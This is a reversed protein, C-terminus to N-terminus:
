FKIDNIDTQDVKLKQLFSETILQEPTNVNVYTSVHYGSDDDKKESELYSLHSEVTSDGVGNYSTLFGDTVPKQNMFTNALNVNPLSPSNFNNM